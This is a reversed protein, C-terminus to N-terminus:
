LDNLDVEQGMKGKNFKDQNFPHSIEVYDQCTELLRQLRRTHAAGAYVVIRRPTEGSSTLRFIRYYQYVDMLQRYKLSIFNYGIHRDILIVVFYFISWFLLFYWLEARSARGNFNAYNKLCKIFYYM